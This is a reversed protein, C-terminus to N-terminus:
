VVRMFIIAQGTSALDTSANFTIPNSFANSFTDSIAISRRFNSTSFDTAAVVYSTTTAMISVSLSDDLKFGIWYLKGSELTVATISQEVAGGSAAVSGTGSILTSPAGNADAEYICFKVNASGSCNFGIADIDIDRPAVYPAFYITDASFSFSAFSTVVANSVIDNSGSLFTAQGIGDGGGGGLGAVLNDRRIKKSTGNAGDTTDSVDIIHLLDNDAPTETLETRTTLSPM